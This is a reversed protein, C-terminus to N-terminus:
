SLNTILIINFLKKNSRSEEPDIKSMHKISLILNVITFITYIIGLILMPFFGPGFHDAFSRCLIFLLVIIIESFNLLAYKFTKSKTMKLKRKVSRRLYGIHNQLAAYIGYETSRRTIVNKRNIKLKTTFM